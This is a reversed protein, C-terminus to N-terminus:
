HLVRAQWQLRTNGRWSNLGPQMYLHVGQGQDPEPQNFMVVPVAQKHGDLLANAKWHKGDKGLPKVEDLRAAHDFAPAEFGQGWPHRLISAAGELDLEPVPGDSLLVNELMGPRIRERAVAEFLEAFREVQGPSGLTAGAAMAHGGFQALVQPDRRAIEELADKLHFGSISRGSGKAKGDFLSFIFTPRWSSDKIRSAVLGIIGPHWDKSAQVVSMGLNDQMQVDTTGLMTQADQAAQKQLEKRQENTRTLVAALKRAHGRETSLLLDIGLDMTQLRGAANIRPALAFGIDISTLYPNPVGAEDILAQVGVPTKGARIMELGYLVLQRNAADLPVLDAVTGIAVYPLLFNLATLGGLGKQQLVHKVAVVLWMAVSVGALRSLGSSCDSRAPDIVALADPLAEGPLHHDTVVVDLGLGAAYGIGTHGMIGNDVTVLVRTDPRTELVLDVVSPSIGYGHVMRDPVVYSINAGLARLGAVMVACATAGDCDYDAVVTLPEKRSIAQVIRTAGQYLDAMETGLLSKLGPLPARMGRASLLQAELPSVQQGGAGLRAQLSSAQDLCVLRRQLICNDPM